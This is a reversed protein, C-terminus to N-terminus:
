KAKRELRAVFFGDIGDIHPFLQLRGGRTRSMLDESVHDALRGESFESHAALFGDVIEDNELRDITCTSYILRGGPKVYRSATELIEKQVAALSTLEEPQKHLKIDPKRYLLGLASCPADVFVCDFADYLAPDPVSADAAQTQASVGLREFASRMLEVRHPHLDRALLRSPGSQAILATKGGPAACVDMVAEGGKLGGAMVVLMSSEGQVTMFGKKYMPLEDIEKLARVYYADPHYKGKRWTFGGGQLKNELEQSTCKLRNPRICTEADNKHCSFLEETFDFGYDAVYKEAMWLPYSYMVSLYRAPEKEWSPYEVNGANEGIRRLVANVFGKLQRKKSKEMLKVSENVAASTPVNEFYILQCVGLRLVQRVFRHIRKGETFADIIYDIRLRNELVTYCLASVFRREQDGLGRLYKKLNLNFYGGEEVENLIDLAIKRTNQAM